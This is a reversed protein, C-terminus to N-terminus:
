AIMGGVRLAYGLGRVSEVALENTVSALKRRLSSACVDLANDTINTESGWITDILEDRDVVEGQARALTFLL